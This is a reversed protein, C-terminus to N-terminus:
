SIKVFDIACKEIYEIPDDTRRMPGCGDMSSDAALYEKKCEMIQVAYEATPRLLILEEM